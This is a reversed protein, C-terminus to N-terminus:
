PEPALRGTVFSAVEIAKYGLLRIQFKVSALDRKSILNCRKRTVPSYLDIDKVPAERFLISKRGYAFVGPYMYDSEIRLSELDSFIAEFDRVEFRWYDHPLGHLPFGKSRTTVLLFGGPRCVGKLNHIAARWDLVHELLETAIVGDFTSYGFHAILNEVNCQVDVRSGMRSDTSLYSCPKWSEVLKRLGFGQASGSELISKNEVVAPSLTKAAFVVASEVM